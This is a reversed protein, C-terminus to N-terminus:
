GGPQPRADGGRHSENLPEIVMLRELRCRLMM